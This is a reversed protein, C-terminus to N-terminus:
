ATGGKWLVSPNVIHRPRHGSLVREVEDMALVQNRKHSEESYWAIHPTILATDCALIAADPPPPENELVDIGAGALAGSELAATLADTDVLGGRATNILMAGPKMSGIAAEDIIHHTEETLPAHLTVFDSEGLLDSLEYCREVDFAEFVDDDLYPDYAAVELGFGKAKPVVARGVRGLGVIGLRRGGVTHIPRAFEYGWKAARTRPIALQFKRAIGLLLTMAHTAVDDTCYTPTNCVPIGRDSAAGVDVSDFGVSLTQILVCSQLTEILTRDVPYAIVALVDATRIADALEAESLDEQRIVKAGLSSLRDHFYGFDTFKM